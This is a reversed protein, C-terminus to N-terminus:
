NKKFLISQRAYHLFLKMLFLLGVDAYVTVTEYNHFIFRIKQRRSHM